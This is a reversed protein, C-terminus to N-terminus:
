LLKREKHLQLITQMIALIVPGIVIGVVGFVQIGGLIGIFVVIPHLKAKEGILKPRIVNDITSIVLTGYAILAIGMIIMAVNNFIIGVFILYLSMPLWIIGTGLTPITATFTTLVAWLIPNSIGGYLSIIWYALGALIGQSLAIILVGYIVGKITNQVATTFNKQHKEKLPLVKKIYSVFKRGDILFFFTMFLVIFVDVISTSLTVILRYSWNSIINAGDIIIGSIKQDINLFSFREKITNMLGEIGNSNNDPDSLTDLKNKTNEVTDVVENYLSNLIFAAPVSIMLFIIAIILSASVFKNKVKKKTKRYIPYFIYALIMSTILSTIFPKVVIYSIICFLLLILIFIYRNYVEKKM